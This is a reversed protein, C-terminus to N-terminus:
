RRRFDFVNKYFEEDVCFEIRLALLNEPVPCRRLRMIDKETTVIWDSGTRKGNEGIRQVDAGSYQYHDRFVMFGRLEGGLSLLASRFSAPNGIGCFAFVTKDRMESLSVVDGSPKVFAIPVHQACYAPASEAYQRIERELRLLAMGSDTADTASVGASADSCSHATNTIVIIDARKMASLPERLPGFPFLKRNGFPNMGDILLVDKDRHLAWHQFGDDLIFLWRPESHSDPQFTLNTLAYMGARYRDKGKVIPVGRLTEAMLIAEDGAQIADMIPGEGRSVVCPGEAEGKYGRTLICPHFGIAAAWKALAMVAPTKGTGGLTLNGISVVPFPLKKWNRLALAKKVTYGVFYPYELLTM